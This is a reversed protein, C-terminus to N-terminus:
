HTDSARAADVGLKRYLTSRSIGLKRAAASVNGDCADLAARMAELQLQEMAPVDGDVLRLRASQMADPAPRLEAPLDDVGVARGPTGLALLTRLAGLLQRMNGPWPLQALHQLTEPALPMDQEDGGLNHWLQAIREALDAQARLPPLHLTTQAIRYYLDARFRGSEVDAAIDRHSAAIVAFDVPTARGGGLPTVEREQLVRLLRTQLAAPMDGIEDLFLVGGDADRLLGTAGERRAGTFAGPRYGFLESEILNEPLAACNVAVFPADARLSRRHLERATVEKGSGTEGQLLVPIDADILRAHRQLAEQMAADFVPAVARNAARQSTARRTTRPLRAPIVDRQAQFATGGPGRLEQVGHGRPQASEFLSNYRCRGVESWDVGLMDLAYRNAAVLHHDEFVLVGERHTGLLAADAHLRIVERGALERELLRREIQDVAFRVMGLAHVHHVSAEGSLDLLGVTHGRGDLIPSASCSLVRHAGFYHEAGRVEVPRKEHLATGIANTGTQNESWTVGPRLAVRAAKDLFDASGMADLILGDPATLIVVSGTAQADTYLAEMEPRCLRCLEEYRERLARVAAQEQPGTDLRADSTLGLARCRNWSQAITDSVLGRPPLGAEFFRRRASRISDTSLSRRM